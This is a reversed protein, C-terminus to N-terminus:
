EGGEIVRLISKARKKSLFTELIEQSTDSQLAASLDQLFQRYFTLNHMLASQTYPLVDNGGWVTQGQYFDWHQFHFLMGTDHDVVTQCWELGDFSDAGALAYAVMSLPNGTGLLHLPCYFGLSDLAKRIRRVSRIRAVIGEGLVREPVALLIPCIQEAVKHAAAPILDAPGHLIPVVTGIAYNQDRLVSAVVDESIADATNPPELNDYCFCLHHKYTQCITHFRDVDWAPDGKWYREYNGSDMLIISGKENSRQLAGAIRQQHEACSNAVDFASILFLPHASADLLEVYDVPM